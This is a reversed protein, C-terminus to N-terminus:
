CSCPLSASVVHRLPEHPYPHKTAVGPGFGALHYSVVLRGAPSLEPHVSMSHCPAPSNDCRPLVGSGATSWPGGPSSASYLSYQGKDGTLMYMSFKSHTSSKPAVSLDYTAPLSTLQKQVYSAHNKLAAATATVTTTFVGSGEGCCSWSFFTVKNGVIIPSGYMESSPMTAGSHDPKIVNTPLVSFKQTKFNFMSFGWGEATYKSENQVCVIAFPVLVNTKDPMLAAGVPWRVSFAKRKGDMGRDCHTGSGDPLYAVPTSMFQSPQNTTRLQAGVRIETLPNTLPKGMTFKAMGATSGTTFATLRWANNRFEYRPTDAFVWFDYGSPLGVSFGGDRGLTVNPNEVRSLLPGLLKPPAPAGSASPTVPLVLAAALAALGTALAVFNRSIRRSGHSRM